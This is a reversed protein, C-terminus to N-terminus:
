LSLENFRIRVTTGVQERSKVDIEGGHDAVIRQVIPMGLGMGDAKTTYYPIFLNELTENSMGIGTDQVELSIAEGSVQNRNANKRGARRYAASPMIRRGRIKGSAEQSVEKTEEGQGNQTFYTKVKLTGGDPMAEIANKVLNGLAQAIQERDLSLQPLVKLETEVKVASYYAQPLNDTDSPTVTAENSAEPLQIQKGTYLNLISKVIENLDTPARQPKPMRAFRHFEDILKGIRDVEEIVTETCGNFIQEFVEPKAKAQQLNEVSLRIPFLPNKIEHAVQRAVDRWTAAREAAIREELSQKLDRAMQNFGDALQGIESKSQIEVQHNLNGSAIENVGERLMAIPRTIRRSMVYSILYVLALGVGGSLLLIIILQQQWENQRQHSYAVVLEGRLLRHIDVFPSSLPAIRFATFARHGKEEPTNEELALFIDQHRAAPQSELQQKATRRIWEERLALTRRSAYNLPIWEEQAAEENPLPTGVATSKKVLFIPHEDSQITTQNELWKQLFYGGTLFGWERAATVEVMLRSEIEGDQPVRRRQFHPKELPVNTKIRPDTEWKSFLLQGDATGYEIIHFDTEELGEPLQAGSLIAQRVAPEDAKAAAERRIEQVLVQYNNSVRVELTNVDNAMQRKFTLRTLFNTIGFVVGFMLLFVFGYALFIKDHLQLSSLKNRMKMQNLM